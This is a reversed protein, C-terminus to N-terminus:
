ETHIAVYGMDLKEPMGMPKVREFTVRRSYAIYISKMVLSTDSGVFCVCIINCSPAVAGQLVLNQRGGQVPELEMLGGVGMRRWVAKRQLIRRREV